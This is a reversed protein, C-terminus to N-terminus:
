EPIFLVPGISHVLPIGTTLLTLTPLVLCLGLLTLKGSADQGELSLCEFPGCLQTLM